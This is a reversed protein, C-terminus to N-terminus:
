LGGSRKGTKQYVRVGGREVEERPQSSKSVTEDVQEAEHTAFIAEVKDAMTAGASVAVVLGGKNIGETLLRANREPVRWKEMAAPNAAATGSSGMVGISDRPIGAQVLDKVAAKAEDPARFLCIMTTNLTTNLTTHEGASKVNTNM